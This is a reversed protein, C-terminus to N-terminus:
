RYNHTSVVSDPQQQQKQVMSLSELRVSWYITGLDSWALASILKFSARACLDPISYNLHGVLSHERSCRVVLWWTWSDSDCVCVCLDGLSIFQYPQPTQKPLSFFNFCVSFVAALKFLILIWMSYVDWGAEEQWLCSWTKSHVSPIICPSLSFLQYHIATFLAKTTRFKVLVAAALIRNKAKQLCVRFKICMHTSYIYTYEPRRRQRRLYHSSIFPSSMILQPENAAM